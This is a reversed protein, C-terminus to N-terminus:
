LEGEGPLEPLKRGDRDWLPAPPLELPSSIIQDGAVKPLTLRFCAGENPRAWVQLWGNHLLAAEQSIALGLGTGGTTRSRAPDARWFRDFVRALQEENMGVGYDTVSIAVAHDNAAVHVDIPKGESHEVANALLNRLLREIKKADLEVEVLQSPLSVNIKSGKNQALPEVLAIAMGVVGQVDQLEMAPQEGGADYRSLELLDTLLQEVRVITRQMIEVPRKLSPPMKDRNEFVQDGSMRITTMPTRLEHSVDSVFRQQMNSLSALKTIQKQQSAAMRNFSRALQALVDQGREPIRQDLDGAAIKEAVSAASQVPQVLWNIVFYSITAIIILTILGGVVLTRQVFDLTQQESNLDFVMYLEYAGALPIQIPAGVIIGPHTVGAGAPISISQYKLNNQSKAVTERFSATITSYNLDSSVPSQLVLSTDTQGPTRLLAVKRSQTGNDAELNPVVSNMLTQLAVEDTVNAASFTNQVQAVARQSESLIQSERTQFLGAGISYSLFGGLAVLALGCLAVVAVVARLQISRRLLGILSNIGLAKPLGRLNM